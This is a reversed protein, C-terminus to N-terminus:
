STREIEKLMMADYICGHFEILANIADKDGKLANTIINQLNLLDMESLNANMFTKVLADKVQRDM